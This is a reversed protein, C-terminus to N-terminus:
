GPYEQGVPRRKPIGVNEVEGRGDQIPEADRNGPPVVSRGKESNSRWPGAVPRMKEQPMFKGEAWAVATGAVLAEAGLRYLRPGPALIRARLTIEANCSIPRRFRVRLDGTVAQVGHHFLCHTMAADLLAAIVGGHLLNDYGQLGANSRFTATV